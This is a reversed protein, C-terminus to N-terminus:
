PRAAEDPSVGSEDPPVGSSEFHDRFEERARKIRMKVASLGIDLEGSIEEYSLGDLDRLLLPVRLTDSLRDLAFDIRQRASVTREARPRWTTEERGELSPDEIQVDNKGHDRKLFNLCHNVKIRQIWTKFTSRAEFKELAFFAKVFVEQALDEADEHFRTMYKCNTLVKSRHRQVLLEFARADGVAARNAHEALEEDTLERYEVV